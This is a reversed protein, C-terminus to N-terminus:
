EIDSCLYTKHGGTSHSASAAMAVLDRGVGGPWGSFVTAMIHGILHFSFPINIHVLASRLM